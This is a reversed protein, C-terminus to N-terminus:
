QEGVCLRSACPHTLEQSFIMFDSSLAHFGPSHFDPPGWLHSLSPSSYGRSLECPSLVQISILLTYTYRFGLPISSLFPCDLGFSVAWLGSWFSPVWRQSYHPSHARFGSFPTSTDMLTSPLHGSIVVRM